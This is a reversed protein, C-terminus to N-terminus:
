RSRRGPGPTSTPQGHPWPGPRGRAGGTRRACVAASRAGGLQEDLPRCSRARLRSALGLRVPGLDRAPDLSEGSQQRGGTGEGCCRAAEQLRQLGERGPEPLGDTRQESRPDSTGSRGPTWPPWIEGPPGRHPRPVTPTRHGGGRGTPHRRTSPCGAHDSWDVLEPTALGGDDLVRRVVRDGDLAGEPDAGAQECPTRPGCGTRQSSSRGDGGRAGSPPDRRPSASTIVGHRWPSPSSAVIRPVHKGSSLRIGTRHSVSVITPSVETPTGMTGGHAPKRGPSTRSVPPRMAPSVRFPTSPARRTDEMRFGVAVAGTVTSSLSSTTPLTTGQGSRSRGARIVAVPPTQGLPALPLPSGDGWPGRGDSQPRRGVRTRAGWRVVAGAPPTVGGAQRPRVSRGRPRLGM